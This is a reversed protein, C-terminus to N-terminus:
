CLLLIFAHDFTSSGDPDLPTLEVRRETLSFIRTAAVLEIGPLSRTKQERERVKLVKCTLNRPSGEVANVLARSRAKSPLLM